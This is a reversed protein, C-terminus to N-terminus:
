LGDDDDDDDFIPLPPLPTEAFEWEFQLLTLPNLVINNAPYSILLRSNQVSDCLNVLRVIAYHWSVEDVLGPQEQRSRLM